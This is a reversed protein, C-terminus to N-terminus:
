REQASEGLASEGERASEGTASEGVQASEGKASEGKPVRARPMRARPARARRHRQPVIARCRDLIWWREKLLPREFAALLLLRNEDRPVLVLQRMCPKQQMNQSLRSEM